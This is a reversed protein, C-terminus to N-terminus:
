HSLGLYFILILTSVESKWPAGGGTTSTFENALPSLPTGVPTPQYNSYMGSSAPAQSQGSMGADSGDYQSNSYNYGSPYSPQPGFVQMALRNEYRARRNGPPRITLDYDPTLRDGRYTSPAPPEYATNQDMYGQNTGRGGWQGIHSPEPGPFNGQGYSGQTSKNSDWISRSRNYGTASLADSTDSRSDDFAPWNNGGERTTAQQGGASLPPALGPIRSPNAAAQPVAPFEGDVPSSSMTHEMGPRTTRTQSLEHDLRSIRNQAEALELKLRLVEETNIGGDNLAASAPRTTPDTNGFTETAPTIPVSNSSAAHELTPPYMAKEDSPKVADGQKSYGTQQHSLKELLHDMPNQDASGSSEHSLKM